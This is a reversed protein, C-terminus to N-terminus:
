PKYEVMWDITQANATAVATVTGANNILLGIHIHTSNTDSLMFPAMVYCTSNIYPNGNITLSVQGNPTGILDHKIWTGNICSVQSGHNQTYRVGDSVSSYDLFICSTTEVYYFFTGDTHIPMTVTGGKNADIITDKIWVDTLSNSAYTYIASYIAYTGNCTIHMNQVIVDTGSYLDFANRNTEIYGSFNVRNVGAASILAGGVTNAGGDFAYIDFECESDSSFQAGCRSSLDGTPNVIYLNKAYVKQSSYIDAGYNQAAYSYFDDIVAKGATYSDSLLGIYSNFDRCDVINVSENEFTNKFYFGAASNNRATCNVASIGSSLLFGFGYWAVSPTGTGRGAQGNDEAVCGTLVVNRKIPAFEFHFGERWSGKAKCDTLFINELLDVNEFDFGSDWNSYNGYRACDIAQCRTFWVDKVTASVHGPEAEFWWGRGSCNVAKCDIFKLNQVTHNAVYAEVAAATGLGKGLSDFLVNQCTVNEVNVSHASIFIGAPIPNGTFKLNSVVWNDGVNICISDIVTSDGEGELIINSQGTPDITQSSTVNSYVGPMIHIVGGASGLRIIVNNITTTPDTSWYDITGTTGNKAYTITGDTYIIYLANTYTITGDTRIIAHAPTLNANQSPLVPLELLALGLITVIIHIVKPRRCSMFHLKLVQVEVRIRNCGDCASLRAHLVGFLKYQIM